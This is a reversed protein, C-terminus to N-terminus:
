EVSGAAPPFTINGMFLVAGSIEDVIMMFFPRDFVLHFPPPEERASTVKMRVSTVAAAETGEENVKLFTKHLVESIFVNEGKVECMRSFDADPRSFAKGMGLKRLPENLVSKYEIKLRPLEVTGEGPRFSNRTQNWREYAFSDNFGSLGCDRDPLFLYVSMEGEGYPIAVARFSDADLYRFEDSRRMMDVRVPNGSAPHFDKVSTKEPDFEKQWIGKFYVANILFAIDDPSISDVIREIRKGTNERVWSNIADPTTIPYCEAFFYKETYDIFDQKFRIGEKLWISNAVTLTLKEQETTLDSYLRSSGLRVTEEGIGSLRLTEYMEERTKGDAGGATMALAFSISAPSIFVNDGGARAAEEEFIDFGFRNYKETVLDRAKGADDSSAGGCSFVFICTALLSFVIFKM